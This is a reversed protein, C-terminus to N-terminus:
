GRKKGVVWATGTLSLVSMVGYVAIGADFTKASTVVNGETTDPTATITTTNQRNTHSHSSHPAAEWQATLTLDGSVNITDGAQKVQGDLEFVIAGNANADATVAPDNPTVEQDVTVKWGCFQKGAPATFTCAPLTFTESADVVISAMTGSGGNADFRVTYLIETHNVKSNGAAAGLADGNSANFSSNRIVLEGKSGDADPSTKEGVSGVLGGANESGTVVGTAACGDLKIENADGIQDHYVNDWKPTYDKVEGIFGGSTTGNM